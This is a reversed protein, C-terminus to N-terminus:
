ENKEVEQNKTVNISKITVGNPANAYIKNLQPWERINVVNDVMLGLDRAEDLTIAYGHYPYSNTLNVSVSKALNFDNTIMRSALLIAGYRAALDSARINENLHYPDIKSAVPQFLKTASDAALKIALTKPIGMGINKTFMADTAVAVQAALNVLSDRIDVVSIMTDDGPHQRQPDLPGICSDPLMFIKDTGLAMITGASMAMDLVVSYVPKGKYLSDILRMTRYAVTPDGGFTDIIVFVGCFNDSPMLHNRIYKYMEGSVESRIVIVEYEM